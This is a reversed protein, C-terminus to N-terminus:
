VLAMHLPALNPPLQPWAGTGLAPVPLPQRQVGPEAVLQKLVPSPDGQHVEWNLVGSGSVM